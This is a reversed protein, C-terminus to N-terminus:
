FNSQDSRSSCYAYYNGHTYSSRWQHYHSTNRDCSNTDMVFYARGPHEAGTSTHSSPSSASTHNFSTDLQFATILIISIALIVHGTVTIIPDLGHILM